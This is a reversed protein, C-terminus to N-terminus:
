FTHIVSWKNREIQEEIPGFKKEYEIFAEKDKLECALPIDNNVICRLNFKRCLCIHLRNHMGKAGCSLCDLQHKNEGM